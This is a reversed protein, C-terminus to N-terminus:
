GIYKKKNKEKEVILLKDIVKVVKNDEVAKEILKKHKSINLYQDIYDEKGTSVIYEFYKKDMCNRYKEEDYLRNIEEKDIFVNIKEM